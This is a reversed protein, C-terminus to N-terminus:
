DAPVPAKRRRAGDPQSSNPVDIEKEKEKEPSKPVSDEQCCDRGAMHRDAGIFVDPHMRAAASKQWSTAHETVGQGGEKCVTELDLRFQILELKQKPNALSDALELDVKAAEHDGLQMNAKSRLFYATCLQVDKHELENRRAIHMLVLMMLFIVVAVKWLGYWACGLSALLILSLFNALGKRAGAAQARRLAVAVDCDFVAKRPLRISIWCRARNLYLAAQVEALASGHHIRLTREVPAERAWPTRVSARNDFDPGAVPRQFELSGQGIFRALWLSSELAVLVPTRSSSDIMGLVNIAASYREAAAVFDGLRFLTKGEQRCRAADESLCAPNCAARNAEFAELKGADGFDVTAHSDDDTFIVGLKQEGEAGDVSRLKARRAWSEWRVRIITGVPLGQTEKSAM